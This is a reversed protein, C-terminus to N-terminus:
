EINSLYKVKFFYHWYSAFINSLTRRKFDESIFIDKADYWSDDLVKQLKYILGVTMLIPRWKGDSDAFQVLHEQTDDARSNEEIQSEEKGYKDLSARERILNVM